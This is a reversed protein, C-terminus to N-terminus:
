KFFDAQVNNNWIRKCGGKGGDCAVSAILVAAEM